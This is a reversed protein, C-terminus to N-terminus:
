SLDLRRCRHVELVIIRPVRAIIAPNIATAAGVMPLAASASENAAASLRRVKMVTLIRKGEAHGAQVISGAESRRDCACM